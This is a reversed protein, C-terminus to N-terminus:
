AFFSSSPLPPAFGFGFGVGAADADADADADAAGAAGSGGAAMGVSAGPASRGSTAVIISKEGFPSIPAFRLAVRWNVSVLAPAMLKLRLEFIVWASGWSVALSSKTIPAM